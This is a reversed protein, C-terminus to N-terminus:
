AKHQDRLRARETSWLTLGFGIGALTWILAQVAVARVSLQGDRLWPGILGMGLFMLLGWRLVGVKLVYRVMGEDLQRRAERLSEAHADGSAVGAKLWHPPLQSERFVQRVQEAPWGRLFRCVAANLQWGAWMGALLGGVMLALFALLFLLLETSVGASAPFGQEAWPLVWVFWPVFSLGLGALPLVQLGWLVRPRLLQPLQTNWWLPRRQAPRKM